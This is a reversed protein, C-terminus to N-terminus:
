VSFSCFACGRSACSIFLSPVVAFECSKGEKVTDNSHCTYIHLTVVLSFLSYGVSNDTDDDTGRHACYQIASM